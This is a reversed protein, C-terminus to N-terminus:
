FNTKIRTRWAPGGDAAAWGIGGIPLNLIGPRPIDFPRPQHLPEALPSLSGEVGTLVEDDTFWRIDHFRGDKALEANLRELAELYEPRQRGFLEDLWSYQRINVTYTDIVTVRAGFPIKGINFAIEYGAHELVDISINTYGCGGLIETIAEAVNKGPWQIFGTEDEIADYPLDSNFIVWSRVTV